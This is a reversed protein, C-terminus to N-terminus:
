SQDQIIIIHFKVPLIMSTVHQVVVIVLFIMISVKALDSQRCM